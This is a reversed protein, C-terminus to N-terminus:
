QALWHAVVDSAVRPDAYYTHGSSWMWFDVLRDSFVHRDDSHRKSLKKEVKQVANIGVGGGFIVWAGLIVWDVYRGTKNRHYNRSRAAHKNIAAM